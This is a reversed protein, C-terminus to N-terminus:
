VLMLAVTGTLGIVGVLEGGIEGTPDISKRFIFPLHNYTQSNVNPSHCIKSIVDLTKIM